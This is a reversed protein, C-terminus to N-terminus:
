FKIVALVNLCTNGLATSIEVNVDEDSDDDSKMEKDAVKTIRHCLFDYAICISM